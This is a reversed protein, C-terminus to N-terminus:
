THEGMQVAMRLRAIEEDSPKPPRASNQGVGWTAYCQCDMVPCLVIGGNMPSGDTSVMAHLAFPHGCSCDDDKGVPVAETM